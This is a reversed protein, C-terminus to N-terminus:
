DIRVLEVEEPLQDIDIIRLEMAAATGEVELQAYINRDTFKYMAGSAPDVILMGILGGIFINGIYWGDLSCIVPVTKPAYGDKEYTVAYEERKMYGASAKLTVTSPTLGTYVTNGARNIVTIKAGSPNSGFTVPYSSKTFITACSTGGAVIM